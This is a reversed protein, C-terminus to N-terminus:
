NSAMGQLISFHWHPVAMCFSRWVENQVTAPWGAAKHIASYTDKLSRDVTMQEVHLCDFIDMSLGEDHLMHINYDKKSQNHIVQANM